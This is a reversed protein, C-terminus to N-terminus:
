RAGPASKRQSALWDYTMTLGDMLSTQPHWHLRGAAKLIDAVRSSGSTEDPEDYVIPLDRCSITVMSTVLDAISTRLGSGINFVDNLAESEAAVITADIVDGVYLYDLVQKGDGHIVPRQGLLLREFTKTIVSTYGTGASQGPGYTFFYRLVNYSLNYRAHCHRLLHEGALKSIGYITHPLPTETEVFAPGNTRGYVYLTSAFVMRKVGAEGAARALCYTGDVNSDLATEPHHQAQGHKEAALHFVYDVDDLHPRLAHVCDRGLQFEVLRCGASPAAVADRSGARLSDLIVVDDAGRRLLEQVLHGGIFGAGGTVLCRSGKIM